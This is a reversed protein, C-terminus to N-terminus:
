RVGMKLVSIDNLTLNSSDLTLLNNQDCFIFESSIQSMSDYGLETVKVWEVGDVNQVVGEIRTSYEGEGFDRNWIGFLGRPNNIRDDEEGSVGLAEKILQEVQQKPRTSDYGYNLFIFAHQLKSQRISIPYRQMGIKRDYNYLTNQIDAFERDRGNEMLITLILTPINKELGWKASAKSVGALSKAESEFDQISLLRGLSQTKGPAADRAKEGREPKSGGSVVDLLRVNTLNEIRSGAQVTTGEKVHGFAGIGTRLKAIVNGIGSPLNSGGTKGNGFQVWSDGNVDQRVVYVREKPGRDFLTPVPAWLDGNVYIQLDPVEPPMEGSVIKYTLPSKPIKFTQFMQRSDGNGLVTETHTKGQSAEVINGYILVKPNDNPFDDYNEIGPKIIIEHLRPYTSSSTYNSSVSTVYANFPDGNPPVFLVNRNRLTQAESEAGYFNLKEGGKKATTEMDKSKIELLPSLVEHFQISRIDMTNYVTGDAATTTLKDKFSIISTSGTIAGWTMSASKVDKIPRVFTRQESLFPKEISFKTGTVMSHTDVAEEVMKGETGNSSTMEAEDGAPMDVSIMDDKSVALVNAFSSAQILLLSGSSIDDIENDLPYDVSDLHPFIIIKEESSSSSSSSALDYVADDNYDRDPPRIFSIKDETARGADLSVIKPPANHGFHRFSRGIKYAVVSDSGGGPRKMLKGKITFLMRGHLERIKDVVVIEANLLESPNTKDGGGGGSELADGVLLRDGEELRIQYLEPDPSSIYFENTDQTIKQEQLPRFLSFKSLWPYVVSNKDTEFDATQEFGELDAQIPFGAKITIPKGGKIEFAFNAKGGIGPSLRYGTIRVLDSISEGWKATRLKTENAYIKQYFTLIDCVICASELLAIGPDDSGRHSWQSLTDTNDLSRLMFQRFDFYSGIRYDISSLGSRNYLKKPFNLPEVCDSKNDNATLSM